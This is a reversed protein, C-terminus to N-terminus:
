LQLDGRVPYDSFHGWVKRVKFVSYYTWFHAVCMAPSHRLAGTKCSLPQAQFKLTPGRTLYEAPKGLTNRFAKQFNNNV